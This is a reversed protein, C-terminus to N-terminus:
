GGVVTRRDLLVRGAGRRFIRGQIDDLLTYIAPVVVLTLLTSTILGGIIADAMPARLEAGSGLGLALPTMGLIMALSTMMIPRFRIRAARVLAEGRETGRGREAKAFDILLIANKAVLGMLMIIGILSILSIQSRGILLGLVAGIIALPQAMIVAFPDIFSEFQAALVFFMFVIGLVLALGMSSFSEGMMESMMGPEISYGPPLNLDQNVKSMFASNFNGMSVGELNCSLEIESQKDYRQLESPSTSFVQQSVQSLPILPKDGGGPPSYQSQIYIDDLDGVSQRQGEGLRVRVDYRDQGDQYQGVVVGSFLTNLVNGVQATSVGLDSAAAQDIQLKVEPQGPKFSSGVDVAGPIGAMIQQAKVAYAQLTNEDDGVLEFTVDKSSGGMGSSSTDVEAQMGPLAKLDQRLAAAIQKETRTRRSRDVLKVYIGVQNAQIESCTDTVEPYQRIIGLMRNDMSSAAALSLGSDLNATVSLEGTDEDPIFTFGLRPMGLTVTALLLLVVAGCTLWPHKLVVRLMRGYVNSLKEFLGNFWALFSGLWGRLMQGEERLLRSSLVPVVTFSVLLSVLVAFVVTMGFPVFIRGIMGTMLGMPLFVAVLTMTTALVALSIEATGDRAAELPKKGMRLHRTINEIVVIADDILLGVALSLALLTMTNLTYGLLRFVFFTSVISTPLSVASTLTSRWDKLFLFVVLVALLSGEFITRVVDDVSDRIFTSNDRVMDISVGPPLQQKLSALAQKAQDAV